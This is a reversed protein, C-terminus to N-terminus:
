NKDCNKTDIKLTLEMVNQKWRNEVLEDVEFVFNYAHTKM